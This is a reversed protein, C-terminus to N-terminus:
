NPTPMSIKDVVLVPVERKLPRGLDITLGASHLLARGLASELENRYALRSAMDGDLPSLQAHYRLDLDFRSTIGTADTIMGNEGYRTQIYAALDAVTISRGILEMGGTPQGAQDKDSLIQVGGCPVPGGPVAVSLAAEACNGSPPPLRAGTPAVGIPIVPVAQMEEHGVLHFRDALMTRLMAKFQDDTVAPSLKAVIDFRAEDVWKPAGSYRGYADSLIGGIPLNIFSWTGTRRCKAGADPVCYVSPGGSKDVKISVVNFRVAADGPRGQAAM